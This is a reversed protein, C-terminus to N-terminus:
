VYFKQYSADSVVFRCLEEKVRVAYHVSDLDMVEM